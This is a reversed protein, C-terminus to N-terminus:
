FVPEGYIRFSLERWYHRGQPTEAWFFAVDLFRYNWKYDSQGSDWVKKLNEYVEKWEKRSNEKFWKRLHRVLETNKCPHNAAM